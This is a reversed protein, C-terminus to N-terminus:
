SDAFTGRIVMEERVLSLIKGGLSFERSIRM